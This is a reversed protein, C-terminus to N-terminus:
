PQHDGGVAPQTLPARINRVVHGLQAPQVADPDLVLVILM